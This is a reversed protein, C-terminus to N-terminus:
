QIMKRFRPNNQLPKWYPHIKLLPITNTTDWGFPMKLLQELIDMSVDQEGNLVHILALDELPAL